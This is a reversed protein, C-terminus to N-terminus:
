SCKPVYIRDQNPLMPTMVQQPMKESTGTFPAPAVLKRQLVVRLEIYCAVKRHQTRPIEPNNTRQHLFVEKAEFVERPISKLM